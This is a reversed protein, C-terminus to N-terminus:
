INYNLQISCKSNFNFGLYNNTRNLTEEENGDRKIFFYLLYTDPELDTFDVVIGLDETIEADQMFLDNNILAIKICDDQSIEIPIYWTVKEYAKDVIVRVAEVLEYGELDLDFLAPDCLEFQMEPTCYILNNTSPSPAAAALFPFTLLLCFLISIFKKM